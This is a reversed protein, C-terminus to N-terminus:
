SRSERIARDEHGSRGGALSLDNPLDFRNHLATLTSWFWEPELDLGALLEDDVFARLAPDIQLSASM